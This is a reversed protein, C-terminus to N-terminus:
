RRAGAVRDYAARIAAKKDPEGQPASSTGNPMVANALRRSPEVPKAQQRKTKSILWEKHQDLMEAAFFPDISSAIRATMRPPLTKIWDAYEPKEIVQKWDPHAESLSSKAKEIEAQKEIQMRASVIQDVDGQNIAGGKTAMVRSFAGQLKDALEPFEERLDSLLESADSSNVENETKTSTTTMRQNLQDIQQKLAGYRGGEDRLRKELEPIRSVQTILSQAQESTLIPEPPTEVTPLEDDVPNEPNAISDYGKRIESDIIEQPVDAETQEVNETM